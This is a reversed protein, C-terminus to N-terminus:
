KLAFKNGTTVSGLKNWDTIKPTATAPEEITGPTSLAAIKDDKPKYSSYTSDTASSLKAINIGAPTPKPRPTKTIDKITFM